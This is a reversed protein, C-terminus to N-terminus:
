LRIKKRIFLFTKFNISRSGSLVTSYHSKLWKKKPPASIADCHNDRYKPSIRESDYFCGNVKRNEDRFNKKFDLKKNRDQYKISTKIKHHYDPENTNNMEISNNNNCNISINNNSNSNSTVNNTDNSQHYISDNKESKQNNEIKLEYDLEDRRSFGDRMLHQQPHTEVNNMAFSNM